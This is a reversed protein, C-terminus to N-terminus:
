NNSNWFLQQAIASSYVQFVQIYDDDYYDKYWVNQVDFHKVGLLNSHYFLKKYYLCM